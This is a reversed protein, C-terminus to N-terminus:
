EMAGAPFIGQDVMKEYAIVKINEYAAAFQEGHTAAIEAFTQRLKKRGGEPVEVTKTEGTKPDEREEIRFAQFVFTAHDIAPNDSSLDIDIGVVRVRDVTRPEEVTVPVEYQIPM